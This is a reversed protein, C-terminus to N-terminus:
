IIYGLQLRGERWEEWNGGERQGWILEEEMEM